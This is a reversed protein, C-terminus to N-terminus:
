LHLLATTYNSINYHHTHPVKKPSSVLSEKLSFLYLGHVLGTSVLQRVWWINVAKNAATATGKKTRHQMKETQSVAERRLWLRRETWPERGFRSLGNLVKHLVPFNNGRSVVPLGFLMHPPPYIGRSKKV